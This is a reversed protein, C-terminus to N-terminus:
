IPLMMAIFFTLAGLAAGGITQAITHRHLRVRSWSVLPIALLIPLSWLGFLLSTMVSFSAATAAHASIKWHLNIGGMVLMQIFSAGTLVLFLHPAHALIGVLWSTGGCTLTFFYPRLRQERIYVDFDSVQNKRLLWLIYGVPLLVVLLINFGAWWWGIASDLWEAVLLTGGTGLIPPSAVASVAKALKVTRSNPLVPLLAKNSQNTSPQKEM